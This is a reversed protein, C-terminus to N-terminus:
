GQLPTTLDRSRHLNQQVSATDGSRSFCSRNFNVQMYAIDLGLVVIVFWGYFPRPWTLTVHGVTNEGELSIESVGSALITSNQMSTSQILDWDVTVVSLRGRFPAHGSYRARKFFKKQGLWINATPLSLCKLNQTNISVSSYSHM